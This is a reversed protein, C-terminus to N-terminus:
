PTRQTPTRMGCSGGSLLWTRPWTVGGPWAQRAGLPALLEQPAEAAWEGIALVSTCGALVAAAAIALISAITHRVGRRCRPDPVLSLLELLRGCDAAGVRLDCSRAAASSLVAPMVSQARV